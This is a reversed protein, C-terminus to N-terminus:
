ISFNFLQKMLVAMVEFAFSLPSPIIAISLIKGVWTFRSCQCQMQPATVVIPHICPVFNCAASISLLSLLLLDIGRGGTHCVEGVEQIAVRWCESSCSLRKYPLLNLKQVKLVKWGKWGRGGEGCEDLCCLEYCKRQRISSSVESWKSSHRCQHHCRQFEEMDANQSWRSDAACMEFGKKM